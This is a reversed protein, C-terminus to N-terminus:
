EPSSTKIQLAHLVGGLHGALAANVMKHQEVRTKGAFVKDIIKVSYHDQDGVTDIIELQASPFATRLLKELKEQSIAM